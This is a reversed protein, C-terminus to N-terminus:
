GVRMEDQFWVEIPAGPALTKHIEAVRATFKKSRM